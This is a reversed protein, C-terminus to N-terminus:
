PSRTAGTLTGVKPEAELPAPGDSPNSRSYWWAAVLGTGFFVCGLLVAIPSIWGFPSWAALASIKEGRNGAWFGSFLVELSFSFGVTAIVVAASVAAKAPLRNVASGVAVAFPVVLPFLYRGQQAPFYGPATYVTWAGLVYAPVVFAIPLLILRVNKTAPRILASMLAALLLATLLQVWWKPLNLYLWGFSGWFSQITKPILSDVFEGIDRDFGPLPEPLGDPMRTPYIEGFLLLNRVYMWTSLALIGLLLLASKWARPQRRVVVLCVVFIFPLVFLGLLKTQVVVAASLATALALPATLGRALITTALTITLASSLTLLNDNNVASGIHALQPVCLPFCAGVTAGVQSIGLNRASIWILGPLPVLLAVSILRLLFIETDFQWFSQPLMQAVATRVGGVWAYYAPPHNALQNAVASNEDASLDRFNPLPRNPADELSFPAPTLSQRMPELSAMVDADIYNDDWEAFGAKATDLVRDVHTPEDPAQYIPVVLMFVFLM